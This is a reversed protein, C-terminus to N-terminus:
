RLHKQLLGRRSLNAADDSELNTFTQVTQSPCLSHVHLVFGCTSGTLATLAREVEAILRAETSQEQFQRNKIQWDDIAFSAAFNKASVM